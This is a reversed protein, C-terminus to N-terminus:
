WPLIGLGVFYVTLITKELKTLIQTESIFKADKEIDKDTSDINDVIELLSAFFM